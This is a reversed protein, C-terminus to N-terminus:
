KVAAPTSARRSQRATIVLGYLGGATAIVIGGVADIWWLHQEHSLTVILVALSALAAGVSSLWGDAILASSGLRAGVRRKGIALPALILAAVVAIASGASSRGGARGEALRWGGEVCSLVALGVLGAAVALAARRERRGELEDHRLGHAFHLALMASGFADLLAAVGFVVFTVIHRTVGLVVEAFGIMVTAVVSAVSLWLGFRLDRRRPTTEDNPQCRDAGM